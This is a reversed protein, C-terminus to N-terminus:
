HASGELGDLLANLAEDDDFIDVGGTVGAASAGGTVGAATVDGATGIAAADAGSVEDDFVSVILEEATKGKCDDEDGEEGGGGKYGAAAAAAFDGQDLAAQIVTTKKLLM